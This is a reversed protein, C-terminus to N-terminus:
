SEVDMGRWRMATGGIFPGFDITTKRKAEKRGLVSGLVAATGGWWRGLGNTWLTAEGTCEKQGLIQLELSVVVLELRSRAAAAAGHRNNLM